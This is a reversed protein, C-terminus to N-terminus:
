DKIECYVGIGCFVIVVILFFAFIGRLFADWYKPNSECTSFAFAGYLIISIMIAIAIVLFTKKM